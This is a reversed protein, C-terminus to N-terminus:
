PLNVLPSQIFGSDEFCGFVVVAQDSPPYKNRTFVIVETPDSLNLTDNDKQTYAFTAPTRTDGPCSSMSQTLSLEQSDITYAGKHSEVQGSSESTLSLLLWVFNSDTDLNLGIAQTGSPNSYIWSGIVSPNAAPDEACGLLTLNLSLALLLYKNM